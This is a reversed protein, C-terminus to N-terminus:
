VFLDLPADRTLWEAGDRTILFQDEMSVFIDGGESFCITPELTVVMGPELVTHDNLAMYPPEHVVRGVGHGTYPVVPVYGTDPYLRLEIKRLGSCKVGPGLEPVMRELLGRELAHAREMSPTVSGFGVIRSLNCMYGEYRGQADIRIFQGSRLRNGRAPPSGNSLSLGAPGFIVYAREYELGEELCNQAFTRQMELETMGERASRVTALWARVTRACAERTRRVEEGSKVVRLQWLISEADALRADPLLERLREAYRLGLYRSEIGVTGRDLGRERLAEAAVAMPDGPDPDPDLPDAWTQIYYGPGWYRRDRIWPELVEITTQESAGAVLFPGKAEDAPVGALTKHTADTDWLLYYDDSTPHWYDALYGVNHKSSALLIDVGKERMLASAKAYDFLRM